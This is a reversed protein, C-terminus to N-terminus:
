APTGLLTVILGKASSGASTINVLIEADDPIATNLLGASTVSSSKANQAITLNNLLNLGNATVTITVGGGTSATLLSARIQTLTFPIPARFYGVNTNITLSTILDSCALQFVLTNGSGAWRYTGDGNSTLVQSSLGTSGVITALSLSDVYQKTAAGMPASPSGSLILLGTMTDGSKSVKGALGSTLSSSLSQVAGDVYQKTAAGLNTAPDSNLILSGTMTDGSRSVKGAVASSLSSNATDVYQKTVAQSGVLPDESLLLAGTMTSGSISVLSNLASSLGTVDNIAHVHMLPVRADTMRPDNAGVVVPNAVDSSPLNLKVTGLVLETAPDDHYTTTVTENFTQNLHVGGLQISHRNVVSGIPTQQPIVPSTVITGADDCYLPANIGSSTWDWDLSTVVGSTVVHILQGTTVDREIIGFQGVRSAVEADAPIIEGFDSFKVITYRALNQVAMAEVVLTALKVDATSTLKSRLTDETTVFMGANNKLPLNSADFLIYGANITNRDGSQTGTFLPSDVSLSVPTTGDALKCAFVRNKAQWAAGTWVKMQKNNADYWHQNVRPNAPQISSVVPEYPTTGFTRLATRQDVDWFLWVDVGPTFPGWANIVSDKEVWVFDSSGSSITLLLPDAGILLDATSSKVTLFTPPTKILGHRFPILM